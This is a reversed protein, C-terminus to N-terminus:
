IHILSLPTGDDSAAYHPFPDPRADTSDSSKWYNGANTPSDKSTIELDLRSTDFEYLANDRDLNIQYLGDTGPVLLLPGGDGTFPRLPNNSYGGLTWVLAEARDMRSADHAPANANLPLPTIDSAPNVDLLRQLLQLQATEIRPFIKRYHREVVTWDSFDPPYDGYKEQYREIAQEIQGIELRQKTSKATEIVGFIAPVAIGM